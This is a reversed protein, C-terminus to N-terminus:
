RKAFKLYVICFNNVSTALSTEELVLFVVVMHEPLGVESYIYGLSIFDPDQLSLDASGHENCCQDCYGLYPFLM